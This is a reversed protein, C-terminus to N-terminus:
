EIREVKVKKNWALPIMADIGETPIGIVRFPQGFFTVTENEWSHTDGKPIGLEYVARRGTLNLESTIEEDSLPRVLVNEVPVTEASYTPRNFDDTGTRTKVSLSVTIGRLM